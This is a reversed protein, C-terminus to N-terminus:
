ETIYTNKMCHNFAIQSLRWAQAFTNNMEDMLYHFMVNAADACPTDTQLLVVNEVCIKEVDEGDAITNAMSVGSFAVIAIATFLLKKM